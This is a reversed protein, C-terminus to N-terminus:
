TLENPITITKIEGDDIYAFSLGYTKCYRNTMFACSDLCIVDGYDKPEDLAQHGIILKEVSEITKSKTDVISRDWTAIKVHEHCGSELKAIFEPWSSNDGLGAHVVGINGVETEVEIALQMNNRILGAYKMFEEGSLRFQWLNDFNPRKPKKDTFELFMMEHNGIVAYFWKNRLLRLCRTNESGRDIIDGVSFVRDTEANFNLQKLGQMFLSYHGHIDGVFFDKGSSNISFRLFNQKINM